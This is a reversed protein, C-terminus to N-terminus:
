KGQKKYARVNVAAYSILNGILPQYYKGGLELASNTNKGYFLYYYGADWSFGRTPLGQGMTNQYAWFAGLRTSNDREIDSNSSGPLVSSQQIGMGIKQYLSKIDNIIMIVKFFISTSFTGRM